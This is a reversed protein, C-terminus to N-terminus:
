READPFIKSPNLLGAPDVARKLRRQLELLPAPQELPLWRKKAWGVGHEGTITGGLRLALELMRGLAREVTGEEGPHYLVNAHLNGDGAHGYTAVMLGEERGIAHCGAIAEVLKSRPVVLDDSIKHPTLRRLGPSVGRRAEWLRARQGEDRAVLIEKAGAEQCRAGLLLLEAEVGAETAGDVEAILCAGADAPFSIPRGDVARMAVADLLELARPVLGAGLVANVATAAQELSGFTVLATQVHAPLPLLRLTIRTAVGLTGESGVFLSVLDYGAVGKLTRRGVQLVEGDPLVWEMGLVYDGTVGYKLARPGGANEAVNGGLTCSPWSNPDPPYFLGKAEVAEMLDGLVVGPEVVAVLDVPDIEVIRNMRELSLAVGGEVPLSGGSKGTRAGCPTVPVGAAHAEKLIRSVQATDQPLAVLQPLHTGGDSADTAYRELVEQEARLTGAPLMSALRSSLAGVTAASARM